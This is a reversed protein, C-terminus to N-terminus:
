LKKIQIPGDGSWLINIWELGEELADYLDDLAEKAQRGDKAPITHLAGDTTLINLSCENSSCIVFAENVYSSRLLFTNIDLSAKPPKPTVHPIM